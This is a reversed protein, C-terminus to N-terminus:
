SKGCRNYGSQCEANCGACDNETHDIRYQQRWQGIAVRVLQYKRDASIGTLCGANGWRVKQIISGFVVTEEFEGCHTRLQERHCQGSAGRGLENLHSGHGPAKEVY